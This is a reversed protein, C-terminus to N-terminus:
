RRRRRRQPGSPGADAVAVGPPCVAFEQETLAVRLHGVLQRPNWIWWERDGGVGALLGVAARELVGPARLKEERPSWLSASVHWVPM